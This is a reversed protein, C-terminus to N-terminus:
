KDPDLEPFRRTIPFIIDRAIFGMLNGVATKFKEKLEADSIKEVEVFMEGITRDTAIALDILSKAVEKEM